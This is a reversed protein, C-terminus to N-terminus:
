DPSNTGMSVTNIVVGFAVKWSATISALFVRWCCGPKPSTLTCSARSSPIRGRGFGVAPVPSNGAYGAVPVMRFTGDDNDSSNARGVSRCDSLMFTLAMRMAPPMVLVRGRVRALMSDCLGGVPLMGAPGPRRCARGCFTGARIAAQCRSSSSRDSRLRSSLMRALRSTKGSCSRGPM